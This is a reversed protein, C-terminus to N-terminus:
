PFRYTQLTMEKWSRRRALFYIVFSLLPVSRRKLYSYNGQLVFLIFKIKSIYCKGKLSLANHLEAKNSVLGTLKKLPVEEQKMKSVFHPMTDVKEDEINGILNPYTTQQTQPPVFSFNLQKQETTSSKRKSTQDVEMTLPKNNSM